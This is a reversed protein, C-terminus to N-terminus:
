LGKKIDKFVKEIAQQGDVELLVGKKSYYGKLPETLKHYDDLRKRIAEPTSDSRVALVSDCKDCRGENKPKLYLINYNAKCSSCILRASMRKMCEEDSVNIFVCQTVPKHKELFEAQDITRPFGDFVFGKKLEKSNLKQLIVEFVTKDDVLKGEDLIKKVRRGLETDQVQIERFIDGTSIHPLKLYLALKEAQTGKGSGPGGALVYNKM